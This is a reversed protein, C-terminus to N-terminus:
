KQLELAHRIDAHTPSCGKYEPYPGWDEFRRGYQRDLVAIVLPAEELVKLCSAYPPMTDHNPFGAENSMLPTMGLNVLWSRVAARLDRLEYCSSSVFVQLAYGM